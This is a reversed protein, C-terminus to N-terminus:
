HSLVCEPITQRKLNVFRQVESNIKFMLRLNYVTIVDYAHLIQKVCMLYLLISLESSMVCELLFDRFIVANSM